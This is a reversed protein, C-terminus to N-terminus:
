RIIDQLAAQLTRFEFEFGAAEAKAPVMRQSQYLSGAFEGLLTRAAIYPVPLLAPRGLCTALTQTFESNRVPEPASGNVPGSITEHDRCWVFLRALDAVHIWPMWQRGSGIRGGLCMRFIPTLQKLAGGGKGLVLGIRLLVVRTGLRGIQNAAVEWERCVDALFGSGSPMSETLESEGGEGFFGVASANVLVRPPVPLRELGQILNKTGAVRSDRIRKKRAKTWRGGAVTEGMLNIVAAPPNEMLSGIPLPGGGPDWEVLPIKSGLRRRASEANRTVVVPDELLELLHSGIFGTAGTVLTRM